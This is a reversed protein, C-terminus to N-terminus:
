WLRRWEAEVRVRSTSLLLLLELWHWSGLCCTLVTLPLPPPPPMERKEWWCRRAGAGDCVACVGNLHQVTCTSLPPPPPFERTIQASIEDISRTQRDKLFCCCCLFLRRGAQRGAEESDIFPIFVLSLIFISGLPLIHLLAAAAAGM